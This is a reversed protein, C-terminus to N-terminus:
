LNEGNLYYNFKAKLLAIARKTKRECKGGMDEAQFYREMTDWLGDTWGKDWWKGHVQRKYV